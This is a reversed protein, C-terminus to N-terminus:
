SVLRKKEDMIEGKTPLCPTSIEGGPLRKKCRRQHPTVEQQDLNSVDIGRDLALQKLIQGGNKQPIYKRAMASWNIREGDPLNRLKDM